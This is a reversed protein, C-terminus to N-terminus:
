GGGGKSVLRVSDTPIDNEINHFDCAGFGLLVVMVLLKRM